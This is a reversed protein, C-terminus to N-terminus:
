GFTARLWQVLADGAITVIRANVVGHKGFKDLYVALRRTSTRASFILGWRVDPAAGGARKASAEFRRLSQAIIAGDSVRVHHARPHTELGQPTLATRTMLADAVHYVDLQAYEPVAPAPGCLMPALALTSAASMFFPGRQM